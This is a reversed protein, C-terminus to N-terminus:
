IVEKAHADGSRAVVERSDTSDEDVPILGALKEPYDIEEGALLRVGLTPLDYTYPGPNQQRM